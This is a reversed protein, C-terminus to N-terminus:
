KDQGHFPVRLEKDPSETYYWFINIDAETGTFDAYEDIARNNGDGSFNTTVQKGILRSDGSGMYTQNVGGFSPDACESQVYLKGDQKYYTWLVDYGGVKTTLTQKEVSINTLKIPEKADKHELVEYKAVFSVPTQETVKVGHPLEFRFTTEEPNDFGGWRGGKLITGDVDLAFDLYPIRLYKEHSAKLRIQTPTVIMEKLTMAGDPFPVPVNLSQKVTGSLMSKKDLHLEFTWDKDIRREERTYLLKYKASGDSLDSLGYYQKGTYEGNEGPKGFAGPSAEKLLTDGKFVGIHPFAWKKAEEQNFSVATDLLMKEGQVFPRVTMQGIGDQQIDFTQLKDSTPDLTIDREASSFSQLRSATLQVDAELGNPTWETEFYGNFTKNDKDWFQSHQGEIKGGSADKLEMTSFYLSDKPEGAASLSYLLVTRNEDVIATHVTMTVGDITVSKEITQGLGQELASQVGSRYSLIHDWNISIAAIVPSAVLVAALSAAIAVKRLRTRKPATMDVPLPKADAAPMNQEIRSWMADFDPYDLQKDDELFRIFTQEAKEM